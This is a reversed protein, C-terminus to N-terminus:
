FRRGERVMDAIKLGGLSRGKRFRKLDEIVTARDTESQPSAPVLRAVPVGHRTITIQEGKAVRRLLEPLRTKADYAGVSDM